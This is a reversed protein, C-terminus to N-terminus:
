EQIKTSEFVQFFSDTQWADRALGAKLSLQELTTELNWGFDIPVQPLFVASAIEKGEADRKSLIIGDKGIRINEYSEITRPPTLVSIEIRINELEQKALPAFRTDQFAAALSMDHVTSYLPKPTVIRGICGRLEGAKTELTVFAGSPQLFKTGTIPMLLADARKTHADKFENELTARAFWLLSQKEYGTFLPTPRSFIVGLYSVSTHAAADPVNTLLKKSDFHASDKRAQALHASTYYSCVRAQVNELAKMELMTLLIKIPEQGCITAKTEHLFDQFMTLSQRSIAQMANSDLIRVHDLINTNFVDFDYDRGHHVFDSSVVILTTDDLMSKLMKAVMYTDEPRMHGVVLPIISFQEITKQLFPLEMEIAHEKAHALQYPRFYSNNNLKKLAQWDVPIDGLATRFVTYEPLAVGNYFSTHSPALIIVRKITKNKREALPAHTNNELLTQYVSGACLGSYYYGAHPAILAKIQTTQAPVPFQEQALTLYGDLEKNLQNADQTYWGAPLQSTHIVTPPAQPLPKQARSCSSLTAILCALISLIKSNLKYM